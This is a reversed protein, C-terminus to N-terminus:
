GERPADCAALRTLGGTRRTCADLAAELGVELEPLPWGRESELARMPGRAPVSSTSEPSRRDDGQTFSLGLREAARRALGLSSCATRPVLHWVGQEGDILLDLATDVLHPTWTPSVQVDQLPVAQGARSAEIMRSLPDDPLEPDLLLGTRVVLADPFVRSMSAELVRWSKGAADAAGAADSERYPRPSWGDFVLGTSLTLVRLDATCRDRIDAWSAVLDAGVDPAPQEPDFSLLVAWPQLRTDALLQRASSLTPASLCGFRRGCLEQVRRAFAGAGVVLLTPQLARPDSVAGPVQEYILRTNRRWWGAGRAMSALEGRSISRALAALATPRPRPARVDYAGPEYHGSQRTVLSNWDVAGFASWVTVARVDAGSAQAARAGRWAEALWRLQDERDCALHVETLACPLRYRDWVSELVAQHGVIGEPRVRVAELDAYQERGNGGWTHPPYRHLRSDLFRDSTLYYNIGILDPTCPEACLDDLVRAEIGHAELELRLPHGAAVRGCLLDLSLWRRENEYRCQQELDPTSFVTTLDETTYLEARPNIRRVARMSARTALVQNLLARYFEALNKSHPYWLGYLASFRATTLPENVPTYANVQPYRRAVQGAFEALGEAFRADCLHTHPPGSGHHILGVIPEIGLAALRELRVDSWALGDIPQERSRATHEWLIPFRIRSVGLAALRDLDDLRAAHGTRLMQDFYRDGVRNVTCEAGAWLELRPKTLPHLAADPEM